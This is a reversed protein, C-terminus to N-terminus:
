SIPDYEDPDGTLKELISRLAKIYGRLHATELDTKNRELADRKSELEDELNEVFMRIQPDYKDM